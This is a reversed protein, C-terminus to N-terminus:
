VSSHKIGPHPLIVVSKHCKLVTATRVRKTMSAPKLTFLTCCKLLFFFFFFHKTFQCKCWRMWQELGPRLWKGLVSLFLLTLLILFTLCVNHLVSHVYNLGLSSNNIQGQGTVAVQMFDVQDQVKKICIWFPSNNKCSLNKSAVEEYKNKKAGTISLLLANWLPLFRECWQLYVIWCTLKYRLFSYCLIASAECVCM